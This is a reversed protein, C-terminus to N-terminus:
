PSPPRWATGWSMASSWCTAARPCPSRTSGTVASWPATTPPCIGRPPRWAPTRASPESLLARQLELAMTHERAYHFARELARAARTALEEAVLADEPTFAPSPGTRVMSLTGLPRSRTALPVVLASHIGAARYRRLREAYPGAVADGDPDRLDQLWPRGQEMSKRLPSDADYDVFGSPRALDGLAEKLALTASLAARRLRMIGPPTHDQRDPRDVPYLEVAAADALGPVVFDALEACTADVDLTTGISVAATDLLAMRQHARELGHLYQRPETIELGIGVLGIVNGREDEIRHYTSRWERHAFPSRAQTHGSIVIERPRGDRLVQRLAEAPRYVGPLLDTITRGMHAEAPMGNMRALHPNVYLYRLDTDLVVIGAAAGDVIQRLVRYERGLRSSSAAPGVAALLAEADFTVLPRAAFADRSM